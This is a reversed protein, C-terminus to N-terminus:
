AARVRHVQALDPMEDYTKGGLLRGNRKKNAGGWQKFFFPVGNARCLQQISHVWEPRMKRAGPGSEGGVIVWDIDTLNLNPLPGLLPELSLFRVCGGVKRLHDIRGSVEDNEVSTGIWINSTWGLKGSFLAAREPRKTLVQFTHSECENMVNFVKRIFDFPVNEHFLDSMSNVFVVRPQRWGYPAHLSLDDLFIGGSWNGNANLVKQYNGARGPDDGRARAAAAIAVLRRAMREAYCNKCGSSVKSCGVVPNWVSQTWEIRTSTM